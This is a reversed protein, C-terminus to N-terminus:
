KNSMMLSILLQYINIAKKITDSQVSNPLTSKIWCNIITSCKIEDFAKTLYVLGDSISPQHGLFVGGNKTHINNLIKNYNDLTDLRKTMILKQYNLKLAAIIGQDLPQLRSTTNAPLYILKINKYKELNPLSHPHGAFNDLILLISKNKISPLLINDIYYMFGGADMWAHKQHTYNIPIKRFPQPKNATGIFLIPVKVTNSMSVTLCATIRKKSQKIGRTDKKKNKEIVMRQSVKEYFFSTEDMNFIDDPSYQDIYYRLTDLNNSLPCSGGEGHLNTSVLQKREMFRQIFSIHVKENSLQNAKVLM